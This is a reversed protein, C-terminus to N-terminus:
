QIDINPNLSNFYEGLLKLHKRSLQFSAIFHFTGFHELPLYEYITPWGDEDIQIDPKIEFQSELAVVHNSNYWLRMSKDENWQDLARTLCNQKM